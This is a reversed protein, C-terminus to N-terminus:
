DWELHFLSQEGVLWMTMGLPNVQIVKGMRKAKTNLTSHALVNQICEAVFSDDGDLQVLCYREHRWRRKYFDEDLSFFTPRQLGHLLPIIEADNMGVRGLGRGVRRTHIRRRQLLEEQDDPINEDLIIM